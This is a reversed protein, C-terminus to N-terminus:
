LVMYSCDVLINCFQGAESSKTSTDLETTGPMSIINIIPMPHQFPIDSGM